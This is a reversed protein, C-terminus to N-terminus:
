GRLKYDCVGYSQVSPDDELHMSGGGPTYDWPEIGLKRAFKILQRHAGRESTHVSTYEAGCTLTLQAVWVRTHAM